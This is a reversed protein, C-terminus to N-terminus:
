SASACRSPPPSSASSIGHANASSRPWSCIALHPPPRPSSTTSPTTQPGPPVRPPPASLRQPHPASSRSPARRRKTLARPNSSAPKRRPECLILLRTLVAEHHPAATSSTPVAPPAACFRRGELNEPQAAESRTGERARRQSLPHGAHSASKMRRVAHRVPSLRRADEGSPPPTAPVERNRKKGCCSVM